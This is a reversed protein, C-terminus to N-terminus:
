SLIGTKDLLQYFNTDYKGNEQFYNLPIIVKRNPNIIQQSMDYQMDAVIKAVELETYYRGILVCVIYAKFNNWILSLRKM